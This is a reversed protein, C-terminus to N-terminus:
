VVTGHESSGDKGSGSAALGQDFVGSVVGHCSVGILVADKGGIDVLGFFNLVLWLGDDGDNLLSLDLLDGTVGQDADETDHHEDEQAAGADGSHEQAHATGRGGSARGDLDAPADSFVLVALDLGLNVIHGVGVDVNVLLVHQRFLDVEVDKGHLLALHFDVLLFDVLLTELSAAQPGLADRNRLENLDGTLVSGEFLSASRRVHRSHKVVASLLQDTSV